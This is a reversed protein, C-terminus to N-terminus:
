PAVERWVTTDPCDGCTIAETDPCTLGEARCVSAGPTSTGTGCTTDTVRCGNTITETQECNADDSCFNVDGDTVVCNYSYVPECPPNNRSATCGFATAGGNLGLCNWTTSSGQEPFSPTVPSLEGGGCFEYVLNWGPADHPYVQGNQTGCAGPVPPPTMKRTASCTVYDNTNYSRCQWSFTEGQDPYFSAKNSANLTNGSTDTFYDASPGCFAGTGTGSCDPHNEWATVDHDYTKGAYYCVSGSTGVCEPPTTPDITVDVMDSQNHSWRATGDSYTQRVALCIRHTGESLSSTSFSTKSSGSALVTGDSSTCANGNYSSTGSNTKIWAYWDISGGGHNLTGSGSFSVSDGVSYSSGNSPSSITSSPRGKVGGLTSNSYYNGTEGFSNTFYFQYNVYHLGSSSPVAKSASGGGDYSTNTGHFDINGDRHQYGSTVLTKSGNDFGFYANAWSEHVNNCCEFRISSATAKASESGFYWWKDIGITMQANCHGSEINFTAAKADNGTMLMVAGSFIIFLFVKMAGRKGKKALVLVLVIIFLAAFILGVAKVPLKWEGVGITRVEEAKRDKKTEISFSNEHLINGSEDKAVVNIQPNECNRTIEINLITERGPTVTKSAVNSCAKDSGNTISAEIAVDKIEENVSRASFFADASGTVYFSAKAVDGESYYDKDLRLNQVSSSNGRVVYRFVTEGSIMENNDNVLSLVVEYAQPKQMKEIPFSFNKTEGAEMSYKEDSVSSAVEKGFRTREFTSLAVRFDTKESFGNAVDCKLSVNEDPSVDAGFQAPYTDEDGEIKVYCSLDDVIVHNATSGTISVKGLDFLALPMGSENQSNVLINFEGNLMDPAKFEINKKVIDNESLSTVDDYVKEYVIRNRDIGDPSQTPQTLQVSYMVQPQVRSGNALDFSIKFDNGEQSVIKANFIEVEAIITVGQETSSFVEKSMIPAYQVEGIVEDTDVGIMSPDLEEEQAFATAACILFAASMMSLLLLYVKNKM